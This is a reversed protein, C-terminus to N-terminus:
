SVVVGGGEPIYHIQAQGEGIAAQNLKAALSPTVTMM